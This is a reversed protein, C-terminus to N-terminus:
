AEPAHASRRRRTTRKGVSGRAFIEEDVAGDDWSTTALPWRGLQPLQARLEGWTERLESSGVDIAFVPGWDTSLERVDRGGLVGGELAGAVEDRDTVVSALSAPCLAGEDARAVRQRREM